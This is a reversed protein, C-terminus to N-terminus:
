KVDIHSTMERALVFLKASLSSVLDDPAQYLLLVVDEEPMDTFKHEFWTWHETKHGNGLHTKFLLGLGEEEVLKSGFKTKTGGGKVGLGITRTWHTAKGDWYENPGIQFSVSFSRWDKRRLCLSLYDKDNDNLIEWDAGTITRLQAELKALFKAGVIRRITDEARILAMSALLSDESGLAVQSSEDLLEGDMFPEMSKSNIFSQFERIFSIVSLAAPNCHRECAQLWDGVLDRYLFQKVSAPQEQMWEGWLEDERQQKTEEFALYVLLFNNSSAKKLHERYSKLQDPQDAAGRAKSEIAVLRGSPLYIVMDIRRRDTNISRTRQELSISAEKLARKPLDQSEGLRDLFLRLFVDGQGHSGCPNLLGSILRTQVVEKPDFFAFSRFLPAGATSREMAKRLLPILHNLVDSIATKNVTM